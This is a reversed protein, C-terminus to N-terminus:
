SIKTKGSRPATKKNIFQLQTVDATNCRIPMIIGIFEGTKVLKVIVPKDSSQGYFEYSFLNHRRDCLFNLFKNQLFIHITEDLKKLILLRSEGHNWETLQLPLYENKLTDDILRQAGGNKSTSKECDKRFFYTDKEVPIEPFVRRNEIVIDCGDIKLLFNSDGAFLSGDNLRSIVVRDFGTWQKKL